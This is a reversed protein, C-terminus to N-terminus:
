YDAPPPQKHAPPHHPQDAPPPIPGGGIPGGNNGFGNNPPGHGGNGGIGGNNGFGNNHGRHHSNASAQQTTLVAVGMTLVLWLAAVIGIQKIGFMM